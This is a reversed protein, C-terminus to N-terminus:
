DAKRSIIETYEACIADRVTMYRRNFGVKTHIGEDCVYPATGFLEDDNGDIIDFASQPCVEAVEKCYARVTAYDGALNLFPTDSFVQKDATALMLFASVVDDIHIAQFAARGNTVAVTVGTLAEAVINAVAKARGTERSTGIIAGPRLGGVCLGHQRAYFKAILELYIKGAGYVSVGRAGHRAACDGLPLENPSYDKQSGFVTVSSALLLRDVKAEICYQLIATGGLTNVRAAAVPNINAEDGMLYALHYVIDAGRLETLIADADLVDAIVYNVGNLRRDARPPHIDIAIVDVGGWALKAVLRRGITGSAGIVVVKASGLKALSTAAGTREM